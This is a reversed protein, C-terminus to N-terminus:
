DPTAVGLDAASETVTIFQNKNSSLEGDKGSHDTTQDLILASSPDNPSLRQPAVTVVRRKGGGTPGQKM